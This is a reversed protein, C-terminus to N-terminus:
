AEIRHAGLREYHEEIELGLADHVHNTWSFFGIVSVIEIIQEANYHEKLRRMSEDTVSQAVALRTFALAAEEEENDTSEPELVCVLDSETMGGELMMGGAHAACYDCGNAKSVVFGIKGKLGPKLAKSSFIAAELGLFAKLIDPSHAYAQVSIPLTGLMEKVFNTESPLQDEPVLEIRAKSV